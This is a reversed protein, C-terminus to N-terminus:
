RKGARTFEWSPEYTECYGPKDYVVRWGAKEYLPEVDLWGKAFVEALDLGKATLAETVEKQRITVSGSGAFRTSLIANFVEFVVDPITSERAQAAEHPTIPGTM